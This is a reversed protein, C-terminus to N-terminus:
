FLKKYDTLIVKLIVRLFLIFNIMKAFQSTNKYNLFNEIKVIGKEKIEKIIKDENMNMNIKKVFNIFIDLKIPSYESRGIILDM